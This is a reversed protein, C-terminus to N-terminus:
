ITGVIETRTLSQDLVLLHPFKALAGLDTLLHSHPCSSYLLPGSQGQADRPHPRSLHWSTRRELDPHEGEEREERMCITIYCVWGHRGWLQTGALGGLEGETFATCWAGWM